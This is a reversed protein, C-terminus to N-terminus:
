ASTWHDEQQDDDDCHSWFPCDITIRNFEVARMVFGSPLEILDDEPDPIWFVAPEIDRAPPNRRFFNRRFCRRAPFNDMRSAAPHPSSGVSAGM